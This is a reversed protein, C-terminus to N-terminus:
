NLNLTQGQFEKDKGFGLNSYYKATKENDTSLVIKTAGQRKLYDIIAPMIGRHSHGPKKHILWRRPVDSNFGILTIHIIKGNIEEKELVIKQELTRPRVINVRSTSYPENEKTGSNKLRFLRLWGNKIDFTFKNRHDEYVKKEPNWHILSITRGDSTQMSQQRTTRYAHSLTKREAHFDVLKLKTKPNM